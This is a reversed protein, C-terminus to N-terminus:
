HLFQTDIDLDLHEKYGLIINRDIENKGIKSNNRTFIM